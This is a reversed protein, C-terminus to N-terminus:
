LLLASEIDVLQPLQSPNLSPTNTGGSTVSGNEPWTTVKACAACSSKTTAASCPWLRNAAAPSAPAKSRVGPSGGGDNVNGNLTSQGAASVAMVAAPPVVRGAVRFKTTLPTGMDTLM